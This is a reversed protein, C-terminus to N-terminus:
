DLKGDFRRRESGLPSSGIKEGIEVGSGMSRESSIFGDDDDLDTPKDPTIIM